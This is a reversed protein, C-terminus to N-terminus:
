DQLRSNLQSQLDTDNRALQLIEVYRDVGIGPADEVAQTMEVQAENIIAQQEAEGEATQLRKTYEQEITAVEKYAIVFADIETESVESPAQQAFAPLVFAPGAAITIATLTAAIKNRLTM